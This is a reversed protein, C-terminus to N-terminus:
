SEDPTIVSAQDRIGLPPPKLGGGKKKVLPGSGDTKALGSKDPRLLRSAAPSQWAESAIIFLDPNKRCIKWLFALASVM